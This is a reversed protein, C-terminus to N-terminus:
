KNQQHTLVTKRSLAYGPKQPLGLLTEGGEGLEEGSLQASHLTHVLCHGCRCEGAQDGPGPRLLFCTASLMLRHPLWDWANPFFSHSPPGSRVAELHLVNRQLITTPTSGQITHM